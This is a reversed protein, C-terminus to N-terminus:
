QRHRERSALVIKSVEVLQELPQYTGAAPIHCNTWENDGPTYIVPVKFRNYRELRDEFTEDSCILPM